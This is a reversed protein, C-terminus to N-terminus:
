CQGNVREFGALCDKASCSQTGANYDMGAQKCSAKFEALAEAKRDACKQSKDNVCTPPTYSLKDANSRVFGYYGVGMIGVIVVLAVLPKSFRALFSVWPKNTKPQKLVESDPHLEPAQPATENKLHEEQKNDSM